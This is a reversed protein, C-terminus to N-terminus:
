DLFLPNTWAYKGNEDIVVARVYSYRDRLELSAETLAEGAKARVLQTPIACGHFRVTVAPSCKVVARGDEVYFDYIEPGCSSYFKGERLADIIANVQNEARVRVWGVCRHETAHCDDTAVGFIRKGQGLLEDWYAADKDVDHVIASISNWIEMACLGTLNEFYRAPTSSWQPHCYITLNNKKHFDDLYAQYEEQNKAFGGGSLHEEDFFGNGAEKTPGVCVTHFTRFEGKNRYFTNDFEMGPLITLPIEPVFTKYNYIRHDTIALFDYGHDYYYRSTEEPTGNGDSRTTHCHLCGKLMKETGGFAQQRIM